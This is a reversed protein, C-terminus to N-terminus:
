NESMVKFKSWDFLVIKLLCPIQECFYMNYINLICKEECSLKM